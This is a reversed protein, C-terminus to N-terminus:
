AGRLPGGRLRERVLGAASDAAKIAKEFTPILEAIQPEAQHAQVFRALMDSLAEFGGLIAVLSNRFDADIDTM